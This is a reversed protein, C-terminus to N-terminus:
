SPSLQQWRWLTWGELVRRCVVVADAEDWPPSVEPAYAAWESMRILRDLDPDHESADSRVGRLWSCATQRPGRPRGAWRGRRELLRVARRVQERWTKGPWLRWVGVAAADLVARRRGWAVVLAAVTVFLEIAHRGAWAAVAVLAQLIRESLPLKPGLVAYGPTPEVVMWHGDQLRVEAWTHLDTTRVPTHATQQDYADPAAYYGLCVRTPYDLSRLLLAAATAFLYDPGGRSETLFWLVPAPHDPPTAATPDFTYGTRLKTVVAEIQQWGRDRDGAWERALRDIEPRIADQMECLDPATVGAAGARVFAADPLRAPDLTHCDTTVIVGPPTRKRGALALVGDHDWEYYDPKDVKNIRFRTLMAPTPVLNDAMDAAKLRHREDERYWNASSKFQGLRMWDGGEAEISRSSPKRAEILRKGIADYGGYAVLRVHLPTRGDVEFLGRAARSDPKKDGKPGTRSTDFDRNPRRNDPPKGDSQIVEAFGGAVMREQDAPPKHPPGYTDSVVDVLSRDTDEIMKETEVMGAAKADDGPTEEPGDGVGYRAFPDTEGTGGSTPILEVLALAARKPGVLALALGGGVAFLLLLLGVWPLRQREPLEEVAVAREPAVCVARLGTWYVLMLWISGTATYLGLIVMVAPHGTMVAAFLTLFLSVVCALRLCAFWGGCAALGLGVNRLGFVMQLELPDGDGTWSRRLPEVAFPAAALGLTLPFVWKPPNRHSDAPVPVFLNVVLALTVWGAALGLSAAVARTDIAAVEVAAASLALLVFTVRRVLRSMEPAM